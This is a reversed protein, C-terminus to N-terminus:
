KVLKERVCVCVCFLKKITCKLCSQQQKTALDHGVRQSGIFQLRGPEETWPIEWAPIRSHTAMEEELPDEWGVISGTNGTNAPLLKLVSGGPFGKLMTVLQRIAPLNKSSVIFLSSIAKKINYTVNDAIGKVMRKKISGLFLLLSLPKSFILHKNSPLSPFKLRFFCSTCITDGTVCSPWSEVKGM